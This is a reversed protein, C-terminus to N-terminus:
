RFPEVTRWKLGYFKGSDVDSLGNAGIIYKEVLTGLYGDVLKYSFM